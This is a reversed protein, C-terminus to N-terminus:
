AGGVGGGRGETAGGRGTAMAAARRARSPSPSPPPRRSRRPRPSNPHPTLHGRRSPKPGARGGRATFGPTPAPSRWAQGAHAQPATARGLGRGRPPPSPVAVHRRASPSRPLARHFEGWREKGAPSSSAPPGAPSLRYRAAHRAQPTVGAEPRRRCLGPGASLRRCRPRPGRTLSVVVM